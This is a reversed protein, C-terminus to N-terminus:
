ACKNLKVYIGKEVASNQLELVFGEVKFKIQM